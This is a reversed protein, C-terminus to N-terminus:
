TLAARVSLAVEHEEGTAVVVTRARCGPGSVDADGHATDNAVPDLELGLFALRGVTGSRIVPQHQGAGGTFALVDIGGLTAAMAAVGARLRHLYVEVAFSADPEGAEAAPLITRLDGATDPGALAALGGRQQLGEDLDEVELGGQTLLWLLLGPDVSGSRTAMVLGELPTMGMTTDVSRGGDVACLSAGGGLHCTVVRSSSPDVGTLSAARRAAWAHSLGHFGRRRLGWRERWARPIAYTAAPAPIGAHFATDFCAIAPVGPLAETTADIGTLARAQHLPALPTLDAIAARVDDDLRAPADFRDGGHVIRHGVAEVDGVADLVEGVAARLADDGGDWPDLGARHVVVPDDVADGDRAVGGEAADLVTLKATASGTNVVLVRV